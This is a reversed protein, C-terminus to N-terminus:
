ACARGGSVLDHVAVDWTPYHFEFGADALRGPVVRRSKLLLETDSRMAFAGLELMWKTAPLGIGIGSARRIDAMFERQPLPNPAAINVAGAIDDREILFQLARAYDREHVWSIYQRGGAAPGGLRFRVLRYLTDFIGGADPSMVMAARM